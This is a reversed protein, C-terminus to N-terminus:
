IDITVSGEPASCCLLAEGPGPEELPEEIYRVKGDVKCLCTNCIGNRCSFAPSLGQAEAFDLLTRQAGNWRATRGSRAFRVLLEATSEGSALTPDPFPAATAAGRVITRAPGFFEYAIREERVGLHTLLDFMAQMFDPPGCLYAEYDGIPLLKQLTDATIRGQARSPVTAIRFTPSQAALVRLEEAFPQASADAVAHILHAQRGSRALAHAMAALPSAGIGGALLIVPRRSSEDLVFRGKPETAEVTAGDPMADHMHSSGLGRPHRRVSIRYHALDGPNSSLSYNRPTARDAADKLRFTLFQGPQPPTLPVGDASELHLSVINDTERVRRAVRLLRWGGGSM